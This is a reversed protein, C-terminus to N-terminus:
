SSPKSDKTVDRTVDRLAEQTYDQVVDKTMNTDHAAGGVQRRHKHQEACM